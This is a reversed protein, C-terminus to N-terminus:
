FQFYIFQIDECAKQLIFIIMIYYIGYRFFRSRVMGVIRFGYDYDKGYWEISLMVAVYIFITMPNAFFGGLGNDFIRDFYIVADGISESRFVTFGIVIFGFTVLTKVVRIVTFSDCWANVKSFQKKFLVSPLFLLGNYGGWAVFTWNAGHWLGSTLFCVSVNLLQRFKGKRNGGLPIYVYDRFWSMLSIHWRRWFEPISSSFYPNDFNRSLRIGFLKATGVAIDSYGSFDGYIQITFLIAAYVLTGGDAYTYDNFVPNVLVACTDAVVIKKFFGWLMQRLGDTARAADFRRSDGFQTLLDRAREIPGAVLQPFFSIFATFSVIDRSATIDKRYVDVMYAVTQFTYFSIGVPLVLHLTVKDPYFGFRELLMAFNDVFFNFYKFVGLTSLILLVAITCVAKAKRRNDSFWEILLGSVFSVATVSLILSLLKWNWWGYFVMSSAVVLANQWEVKKAFAYYLVFVVPMFVLFEFSHFIM